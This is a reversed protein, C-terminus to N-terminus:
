DVRFNIRLPGSARTDGEAIAEVKVPMNRTAIASVLSMLDWTPIEGVGGGSPDNKPIMGKRRVQSAVDGRIFDQIQSFIATESQSGDIKATALTEGAHFIVPNRDIEVLAYVPLDAFANTGARVIMVQEEPSHTMRAIASRQEEEATVTRHSVPDTAEYLTVVQYRDKARAGHAYAVERSEAMADAFLGAAENESLNPAVQRRVLEDDRSFALRAQLFYTNGNDLTNKLQTVSALDAAAKKIQANLAALRTKANAEIQRREANLRAEEQTLFRTRATLVLNRTALAKNREEYGANQKELMFNRQNAAKIEDDTKQIQADTDKIKAKMQTLQENLAKIQDELTKRQAVLQDGELLWTRVSNSTISLVGLVVLAIAAGGASTLVQATHKPRLRGLMLKKKGIRRGLWDAVIAVLAGLVAVTVL